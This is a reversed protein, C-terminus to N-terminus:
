EFESTRAEEGGGGQGPTKKTLGKGKQWLFM